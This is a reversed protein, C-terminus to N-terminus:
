GQLVRRPNQCVQAIAAVKAVASSILPDVQFLPLSLGALVTEAAKPLREIEACPVLRVVADLAAVPTAPFQMLGLGRIELRGQINAPAMAYLRGAEVRLWLYDDGILRGGNDILRLALDSKGVGSPGILLLGVGHYLVATGHVLEASM